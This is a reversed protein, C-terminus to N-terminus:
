IGLAWPVNVQDGRRFRQQVQHAPCPLRSLVRDIHPSCLAHLDTIVVPLVVHEIGRRIASTRPSSVTLRNPCPSKTRM